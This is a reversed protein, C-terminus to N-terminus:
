IIGMALLPAPCGHSCRGDNEVDCAEDCLAPVVSDANCFQLVALDDALGERRRYQALSILHPNAPKNARPSPADVASAAIGPVHSASRQQDHNKL